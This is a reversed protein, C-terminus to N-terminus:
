KVRNLAKRVAGSRTLTTRTNKSNKKRNAVADSVERNASADGPHIAQFRSRLAESRRDPQPVIHDVNYEKGTEKRLRNRTQTQTGKASVEKNYAKTAVSRVESNPISLDRKVASLIEKHTIPKLNEARRKQQNRQNERPQDGWYPTESTQRNKLRYTSREEPDPIKDALIKAADEKSRTRTYERAEVIFERFTKM